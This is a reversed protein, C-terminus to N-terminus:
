GKLNSQRTIAHSVVIILGGSTSDIQVIEEGPTLLHIM